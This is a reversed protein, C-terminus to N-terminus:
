ITSTNKNNNNEVDPISDEKASKSPKDPVQITERGKILTEPTNKRKNNHTIRQKNPSEISVSAGHGSM